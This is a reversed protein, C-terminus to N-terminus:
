PENPNCLHEGLSAALDQPLPAAAGGGPLLHVHVTRALARLGGDEGVFRYSLTFSTRGVESLCLVITVAEGHRLPVRYDAEAHVLPLLADGARILRDLPWGIEGMFREYADHAHRFLHGYFMVGAADIDHLPVRFAHCFPQHPM